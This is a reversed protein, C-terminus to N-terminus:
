RVFAVPGPGYGTTYPSDPLETLGGTVADIALASLSKDGSNGVFLYRGEPSLSLARPQKGVHWPSGPLPVIGGAAIKWGSVSDSGSNAVFLRDGAFVASAPARGTVVAAGTLAHLAGNADAQWVALKDGRNDCTALRHRAEDVALCAPRSIPVDVHAPLLTGDAALPRGVIRNGDQDAVYLWHGIVGVAQPAAFGRWPSGALASLAGHPGVHWASVSKDLSNVAYLTQSDSAMALKRTGKGASWPSGPLPTLTGNAPDLAWGAVTGAYANASYIHEGSALLDAPFGEARVIHSTFDLWGSAAEYRYGWLSSEASNALWAYGDTAKPRPRQSHIYGIQIARVALFGVGALLLAYLFRSLLRSPMIAIRSLPAANQWLGPQLGLALRQNQKAMSEPMTPLVVIGM